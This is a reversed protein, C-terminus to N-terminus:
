SGFVPSTATTGSVTCTVESMNITMGYDTIAFRGQSSSSFDAVAKTKQQIGYVNQGVTLADSYSIAARVTPVAYSSDKLVVEAWDWAGAGSSIDVYVTGEYKDSIISALASKSAYLHFTYTSFGMLSFSTSYLTQKGQSNYYYAEVHWTDYSGEMERVEANITVTSGAGSLNIPSPTVSYIFM